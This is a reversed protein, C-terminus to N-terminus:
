VTLGIERLFATNSPERGLFARILADGDETGGAELIIRRYDRGAAAEVEPGGEFCTYMDDGFVQSWLYGYYGADYGFLHGFGAQFHTGPPFPFGTIGHMAEALADTDKQAGADHYALDLRAFYIQRLYHLGSGVSKAAVMQAFSHRPCRSVRPSMARSAASPLPSGCGTSWCKLRRRSSTASSTQGPSASM